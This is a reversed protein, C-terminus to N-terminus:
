RKTPTYIKGMLKNLKHEFRILDDVSVVEVLNVCEILYKEFGFYLNNIKKHHITGNFFKRFQRARVGDIHLLGSKDILEKYSKVVDNINIIKNTSSLGNKVLSDYMTLQDTSYGDKNSLQHAIFTNDEKKEILYIKCINNEDQSIFIKEIPLLNNNTTM